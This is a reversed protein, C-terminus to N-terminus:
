VNVDCTDISPLPRLRISASTSRSGGVDEFGKPREEARIRQNEPRPVPRSPIQRWKSQQLYSVERRCHCRCQLCCPACPSCLCCLLMIGGVGSSSRRILNANRPPCTPSRNLSQLM